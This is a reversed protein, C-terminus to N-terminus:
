SSAGVRRVEDVLGTLKNRAQTVHIYLMNIAHRRPDDESLHDLVISARAVFASADELLALAQGVLDAHHSTVVALAVVDGEPAAYGDDPIGAPLTAPIGAPLTAPYVGAAPVSPPNTGATPTPITAAVVSLHSAGEPMAALKTAREAHLRAAIQEYLKDMAKARRAAKRASV